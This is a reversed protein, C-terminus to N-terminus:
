ESADDGDMADEYADDGTAAALDKEYQAIQDATIDEEALTNDKKGCGAVAIACLIMLCLYISKM